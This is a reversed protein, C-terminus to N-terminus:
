QAARRVTALRQASPPHTSLFGGAGGGTRAFMLAGKNPDYGASKAIRAGIVDAELEFQQSYTLRGIGAGLRMANEISASTASTDLRALTGFILAGALQQQQMKEVHRAIYHGAEHGLVFAIEDQNRAEAIMPLNFAIIPRGAADITHFANPPNSMNDDLVIRFDCASGTQSRCVAEAVPETRAVAARFNRAAADPSLRPVANARRAAQALTADAAEVDRGSLEPLATDTTCAVVLLLLALVPLRCVACKLTQTM